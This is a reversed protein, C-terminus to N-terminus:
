WDSSGGGGGSSGGGFDYSSSSGSDYSSSSSGSSYSSSSSSIFISRQRKEEDETDQKKKREVEAEAEVKKRLENAQYDNISDYYNKLKICRDYDNLDLDKSMLTNYEKEQLDTYPTNHIELKAKNFIDGITTKFTELTSRKNLANNIQSKLASNSQNVSTVIALIVSSMRDFEDYYLTPINVAYRANSLESNFKKYTSDSNFSTTMYYTLKNKEISDITDKYSAISLDLDKTGRELITKLKQITALRKNEIDAQEQKIQKLKTQKKRQAYVIYILLALLILTLLFGLLWQKISDLKDKVKTRQIAVYQTRQEWSIPKLHNIINNVVTDIGGYWQGARYFPKEDDQLSVATYDTLSGELGYGVEIRAKKNAPSVIYLVGNNLDKKGIGWKRFIDTAVDEIEYGQLDSLVVVAIEISSSDRFTILKRNLASINEPKLKNDYDFVYTNPIKAPVKFQSYAFVPIIILLLLIIKKM